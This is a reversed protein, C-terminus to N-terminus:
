RSFTLLFIYQQNCLQLGPFGHFINPIEHDFHEPGVSQRRGVYSSFGIWKRYIKLKQNSPHNKGYWTRVSMMNNKWTISNFLSRNIVLVSYLVNDGSHFLTKWTILAFILLFFVRICQKIYASLTSTYSLKKLLKMHFIDVIDQFHSHIILVLVM